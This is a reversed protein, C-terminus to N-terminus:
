GRATEKPAKSPSPAGAAPVAPTRKRQCATDIARQALELSAVDDAALGFLCATIKAPLPRPAAARMRAQRVLVDITVPHHASV